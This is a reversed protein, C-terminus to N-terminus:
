RHALAHEYGLKSLDSGASDIVNGRGDRVVVTGVRSLSTKERKCLRSLVPAVRPDATFLLEYDDGGGIAYDAAKRELQPGRGPKTSRALATPVPLSSADLIASVASAECIHGLDRAVGDSVDIMAHVEGTAALAQGLGVRLPPLRYSAVLAGSRHGRSLLEVGASAGGVTGTLFVADGVRARSRIAAPTRMEGLVTVTLSLLDARSVNGGVLTAGVKVADRVLGAALGTADKLTYEAPLSLSLLVYHPVAGMASLDSVAVRFARAGLQLPTLWDREFHVTETLTDTTLATAEFGRVVAADDGIGVQVRANRVSALRRIADILAFEGVRRKTPM